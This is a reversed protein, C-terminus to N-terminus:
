KAPRARRTRVAKLVGSTMLRKEGNLHHRIAARRAAKEDGAVVASLIARHEVRVQEMFDARM